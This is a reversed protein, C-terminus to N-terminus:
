KATVETRAVAFGKSSLFLQTSVQRPSTVGDTLTHLRNVYVFAWM